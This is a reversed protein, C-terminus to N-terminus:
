QRALRWLLTVPSLPPFVFLIQSAYFLNGKLEHTFALFFDEDWIPCSPEPSTAGSNPCLKRVLARDEGLPPGCRSELTRIEM